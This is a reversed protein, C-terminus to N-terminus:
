VQDRSVYAWHPFSRAIRVCFELLPREKRVFRDSDVYRVRLTSTHPTWIAIRFAKM